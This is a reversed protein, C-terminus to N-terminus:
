LQQVLHRQDALDPHVYLMTTSLETHGLQIQVIKPNQTLRMLDTGTTHRIRHCSAVLGYRDRLDCFLDRLHWDGMAKEPMRSRSRPKFLNANFVKWTPELKGFRSHYIDRYVTLEIILNDPIPIDWERHNKSTNARLRIKANKLDVDRWELELIQRRRMGTFYLMKLFARWFWHPRLSAPLTPDDDELMKFVQKLQCTKVLKPKTRGIPLRPVCRFPNTDIWGRKMAFGFLTALHRHLTNFTVASATALKSDRYAIVDDETVTSIKKDGVSRIFNLTKERYARNTDPALVKHKLYFNLLESILM